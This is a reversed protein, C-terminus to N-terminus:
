DVALSKAHVILKGAFRFSKCRGICQWVKPVRIKAAMVQGFKCKAGNRCSGKELTIIVKHIHSLTLVEVNTWHQVLRRVMSKQVAMMLSSQPRFETDCSPVAQACKKALGPAGICELAIFKAGSSKDHEKCQAFGPVTMIAPASATRRWDTCPTDCTDDIEYTDENNSNDAEHDKNNFRDAEADNHMYGYIVEM